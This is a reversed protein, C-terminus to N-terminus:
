VAPYGIESIDAALEDLSVESNLRAVVKPTLPRHRYVHKVAAM